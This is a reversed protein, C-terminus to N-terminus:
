KFCEARDVNGVRHNLWGKLFVRQSPRNRVIAHFFASQKLDMRDIIAVCTKGRGKMAQCTAFATITAPGVKGDVVLKSGCIENLSDQFWRSARSPGHLAASDTIEFFVGRSMAALPRYGPGDIYRKTYISDACVPNAADCHKPFNRMPGRYGNQRAVAETIGYRTAGGRDNPHNVYGGENVYIHTLAAAIAAATAAAAGGIVKSKTSMPKAPEEMPLIGQADNTRGRLLDILRM